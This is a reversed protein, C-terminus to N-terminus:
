PAQPIPNAFVQEFPGITGGARDLVAFTVHTFARAFRGKGLLFEGFLRAMLAPDNGFVGCGWAGLVLASQDFALAASLVMEIRRRFTPEISPLSHPQSNAIAGANPAPSTLVTMEWPEELLTGEDDRFVPVRPAVILHDTYLLSDHRRNSEYYATQRELCAYLASARALSEEQAQAGTLFGGGPHRASAFNLAATRHGGVGAQLRRAAALTTENAVEFLTDHARGALMTDAKTRLSDRDSPAVLVSASVAHSIANKLSVQRGSPAAYVGAKLIAVTEAAIRTRQKRNPM